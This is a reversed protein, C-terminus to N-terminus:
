TRVSNPNQSLLYAFKNILHSSTPSSLHRLPQSGQSNEWLARFQNGPGVHYSVADTVGALPEWTDEEWRGKEQRWPCGPMCTTCLCLCLCFCGYVCPTYMPHIVLSLRESQNVSTLLFYLWQLFSHELCPSCHNSLSSAPPDYALHCPWSPQMTLAFSSFSSSTLVLAWVM